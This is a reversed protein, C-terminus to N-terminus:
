DLSDNDRSYDIHRFILRNYFQKAGIYARTSNWTSLTVGENGVAEVFFVNKTDGQFKLIMAVHDFQSGFLTRQVKSVGRNTEFLLM